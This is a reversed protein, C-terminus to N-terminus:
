FTLGVSLKGEPLFMTDTLDDLQMAYGGGGSLQVEFGVSRSFWYTFEIAGTGFFSQVRASSFLSGELYRYGVMASARASWGLGAADRADFLPLSIGAKAYATYGLFIWAAGAELEFPHLAKLSISGGVLDPFGTMTTVRLSLSPAHQTEAFPSAQAQHPQFFFGLFCLAFFVMTSQKTANM